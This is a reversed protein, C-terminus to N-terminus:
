GLLGRGHVIVSLNNAFVALGIAILGGLWVQTVISLYHDGPASARQVAVRLRHFGLTALVTVVLHAAVVQWLPQVLLWAMVPNAEGAVGVAAVAYLSTLLDVSLLLYLSVAAWSWYEDAPLKDTERWGM